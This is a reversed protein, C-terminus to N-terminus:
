VCSPSAPLYRWRKSLWVRGRLGESGCRSPQPPESPLAGLAQNWGCPPWSGCVSASMFRPGRLVLKREMRSLHPCEPSKDGNAPPARGQGPTTERRHSILLLYGPGMHLSCPINEGRSSPSCPHSCCNRDKPQPIPGLSRSPPPPQTCRCGAEGQVRTEGAGQLVVKRDGGEGRQCPLM